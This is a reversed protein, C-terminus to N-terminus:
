GFMAQVDTQISITECLMSTTPKQGVDAVKTEEPFAHPMKLLFQGVTM